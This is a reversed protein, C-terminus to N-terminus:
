PGEKELIRAGMAAMGTWIEMFSKHIESAPPDFRNGRVEPCWTYKVGAVGKCWEDSGGTGPYLVECITGREWVTNYVAEMADATVDAVDKMDDYDVPYECEVGAFDITNSWPFILYYGYSHVTLFSSLRSTGAIRLVEAAIHQTELESAASPGCYTQHCPQTSAGELSWNWDFNRALDVGICGFISNTPSRNKRWMRDGFLAWSYAYGDPNAVPLFYLDYTDVFTTVETDTGYNNLIHDLIKMISAGTLWERAHILSDIWMSRRNVGPKSITLLRLPRDELSYGITSLECTLGTACQAKLDEMKDLIAEFDNYDDLDFYRLDRAALRKLEPEMQKQMDEVTVTYPLNHRAFWKHLVVKREPPILVSVPHNLARPDRFFDLDPDSTMLKRLVKLQDKTRPTIEWQQYGDYRKQKSFDHSQATAVLLAAVLCFVVKM